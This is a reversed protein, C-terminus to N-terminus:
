LTGLGSFICCGLSVWFIECSSLMDKVNVMSEYGLSPFAKYNFVYFYIMQARVM